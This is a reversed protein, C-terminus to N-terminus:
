SFQEGKIDLGRRKLEKVIDSKKMNQINATAEAHAADAQEQASAVHAVRAEEVAMGQFGGSHKEAEAKQVHAASIQSEVDEDRLARILRASLDEVKGKPDLGRSKLEKALAIKKMQKVEAIRLELDGSVGM